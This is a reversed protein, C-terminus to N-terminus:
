ESIYVHVPTNLLTNDGQITRDPALLGNLTAIGDYSFVSNGLNALYGAGQSDVAIAYLATAGQVQLSFDPAVNGNRSSANNFTYVFGGTLDVVLMNDFQDIFVDIPTTFVASTIIRTPAIVGNLSSANAFVFVTGAADSVYLQDSDDMHIGQPNVLFATADITRIPALNGNFAATSADAFVYILRSASDLVYMLDTASQHALSRPNVLQSAMGQVNRDPALNGNTTDADDYSTVRAGAFNAVSLAGGNDVTLYFPQALQTQGGFLNTDPAINGNVTSPDAYSTVNNGNYNAIFLRPQAVPQPDPAGNTDVNQQGNTGADPAPTPTPAPTPQPQPQPSPLPPVVGPCGTLTLTALALTFARVLYNVGFSLKLTNRTM